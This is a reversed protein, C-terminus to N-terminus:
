VVAAAGAAVAAAEAFPPQEIVGPPVNTPAHGHPKGWRSSELRSVETGAM